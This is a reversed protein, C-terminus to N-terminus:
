PVCISHMRNQGLVPQSMTRDLLMMHSVEHHATPDYVDVSNLLSPSEFRNSILQCPIGLVFWVWMVEHSVTEVMCMGTAAWSCTASEIPVVLGPVV